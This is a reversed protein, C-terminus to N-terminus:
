NGKKVHGHQQHFWSRRISPNTGYEQLTTNPAYLEYGLGLSADLNARGGGFLNAEVAREDHSKM